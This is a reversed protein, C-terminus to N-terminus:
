NDDGLEVKGLSLFVSLTCYTEVLLPPIACQHHAISGYLDPPRHRLHPCLHSEFTPLSFSTGFNNTKALANEQRILPVAPRSFDPQLFCTASTLDPRPVCVSPLADLSGTMMTCAGGTIRLCLCGELGYFVRSQQELPNPANRRSTTYVNAAPPFLM